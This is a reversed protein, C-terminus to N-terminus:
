VVHLFSLQRQIHLITGTQIFVFFSCKFGGGRAKVSRIM